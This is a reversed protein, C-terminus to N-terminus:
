NNFLEDDSGGPKTLSEGTFAPTTWEGTFGGPLTMTELTWLVAGHDTVAVFDGPDGQYAGVASAHIRAAPLTPNGLMVFWSDLPPVFFSSPVIPVAFQGEIPFAPPLVPTSLPQYWKDLTVSLTSPEAVFAEAQHQASQVVRVPQSLPVNWAPTIYLTPEVLFGSSGEIPQSVPFVPVSLPVYWKDLTITEPPALDSPEAVFATSGMYANADVPAYVPLSLPQYWKDLTVTEPLVSFPEVLDQYQWRSM